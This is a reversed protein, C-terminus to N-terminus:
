CYFMYFIYKYCAELDIFVGQFYHKNLSKLISRVFPKITLDLSDILLGSM